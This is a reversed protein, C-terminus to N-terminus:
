KIRVWEDVICSPSAARIETQTKLRWEAKDFCPFFTDADEVKLDVETLCLRDALPMLEKYIGAGGIGYIDDYGLTQALMIANDVTSVCHPADCPKSTVVINARHRLPKHPLSEWTHRGMIVASGMTAQMFYQLDETLHWPITGGKGIASNHARAAILTIM